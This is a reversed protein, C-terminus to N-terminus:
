RVRWKQFWLENFTFGVSFWLYNEAVQWSHAPEVRRYGASLHLEPYNGLYNYHTTIPLSVGLSAGIESPGDEGNVKIYPTSYSVGARYRVHHRWHTSRPDPQYEAGLAFTHRDSLEGKRRIYINNELVPVHTSSWHQYTYDFGVRLRNRYNWGLGVGLTHPLSYAKGVHQTDALTVTSGNTQIDYYHGSSAIDHGYNYVVGLSLRHRETAQLLYQLGLEIKFTSINTEYKRTRSYITADSFSASVSHSLDGWLYGVNVGFSLHHKGRHLPAYALGGYIEHLGGDGKYTETQTVDVGAREFTSTGTLTYGVTSYPRLGVSMGFGPLMRFGAAIYDVEANRANTRNGKTGINAHQLTFGADFLLSASDIAAYTAPNKFNLQEGDSLAYGVGSMGKNFSQAGDNLLGLGYRSYPSNSGNTQAQAALTLLLSCLVLAIRRSFDHHLTQM